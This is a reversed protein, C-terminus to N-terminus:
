ASTGSTYILLVDGPECPDADTEHSIIGIKTGNIPESKIALNNPMARGAPLLSFRPTSLGRVRDCEQSTWQPSFLVGVADAAAMALIAAGFLFGVNFCLEVRDGQRIGAHRLGAAIKEITWVLDGYTHSESGVTFPSELGSTRGIIEDYIDM